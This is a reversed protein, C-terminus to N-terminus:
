IEIGLLKLKMKLGREDELQGIDNELNFETIANFTMKM